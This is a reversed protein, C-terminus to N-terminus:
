NVISKAPPPYRKSPKLSLLSRDQDAGLTPRQIDQAQGRAGEQPANRQMKRDFREPGVRRPFVRLVQCNKRVSISFVTSMESM